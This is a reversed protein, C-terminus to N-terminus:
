LWMSDADVLEMSVNKMQVNALGMGAMETQRIENYTGLEFLVAHKINAPVGSAAAYGAQFNVVIPWERDYTSPGDFNNSDFEVRCPQRFDHLRYNSSSLTQLVNSDDYYKVSNIATVPHKQLNFNYEWTKAYLEWESSMIPAQRYNEVRKIAADLYLQILTDEDTSTVKLHAKAESLTVPSLTTPTILKVPNL